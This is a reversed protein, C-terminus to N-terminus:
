GRTRPTRRLLVRVPELVVERDRQPLRGGLAVLAVVVVADVRVHVLLVHDLEALEDEPLDV